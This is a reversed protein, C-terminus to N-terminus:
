RLFPNRTREYMITSKPGHGPYVIFDDGLPILKNEISSIIQNYNGGEFDTRGISGQFLTDGTFVMKDIIFCSGGPTHGPTHICKVEINGVKIKTGEELYGDALPLKGFVYTNRQMLEEDEKNIYFPVKFHHKLEEVGEVHDVHGHTLLIARPIAGMKEIVEILYKGDGGPDLVFADKTGEDMVVYCNAGYIGVPFAKVLM